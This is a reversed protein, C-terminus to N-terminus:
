LFCKHPLGHDNGIRSKPDPQEVAAIVKVLLDSDAGGLDVLRQDGGQRDDRFNAIEQLGTAARFLRYFKEQSLAIAQELNEGDALSDSSGRM